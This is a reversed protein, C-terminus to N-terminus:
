GPRRAASGVELVEGGAMRVFTAVAETIPQTELRVRSVAAIAALAEGRFGLTSITELDKPTAVKSTAHREFCLQADEADMGRGDDAVRILRLGGNEIEISLASAAADLANDVLERVVSAPGAVVEGAAILTALEKDMRRILGM